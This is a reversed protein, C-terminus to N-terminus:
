QIVIKITKIQTNNRSFTFFYIGATLDSLDLQSEKAVSTSKIMKSNVDFIQLQSKKDSSINVYHTAPNPYVEVNIKTSFSEVSLFHLWGQNFGQTLHHDPSEITAISTEGITWTLTGGATTNTNGGASIVNQEQSITNFALFTFLVILLEKRKM